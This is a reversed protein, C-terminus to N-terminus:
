ARKRKYVTSHMSRASAVGLMRQGTKSDGRAGSQKMVKSSFMDPEMIQIAM